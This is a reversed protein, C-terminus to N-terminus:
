KQMCLMWYYDTSCSTFGANFVNTNTGMPAGTITRDGAANSTFNRCNNADVGVEFPTTGGTLADNGGSIYRGSASQIIPAAIKGMFLDNATAAIPLGDPRHYPGASLTFRSAATMGTPTILALFTGPLNANKAESACLADAGAVTSNGKLVPGVFAIKASPPLAPLTVQAKYDTGLCLLHMALGCGDGCTGALEWSHDTQGWCMRGVNATYEQGDPGCVPSSNCFFEGGNACSAINGKAIERGAEDLKPPYFWVRGRNTQDTLDDLKDAFPKGDPRVWGRAAAFRMRPSITATALWAKWTQGTLNGAKAREVCIADAGAVGGLNAVVRTTSTVFAVNAPTFIATVLQNSTLTLTCSTGSASACAGSWGELWYGAAPEANLTVPAGQQVAITCESACNMQPATARISGTANGRAMVRLTLDATPGTPAGGTGGMPAGGAGGAAPSGGVGGAGSAGALGPVGGAGSSGGSGADPDTAAGGAGTGGSGGSGTGGGGAGGGGPGAGGRPGDLAGDKAGGDIRPADDRLSGCGTALGVAVLGLVGFGLSRTMM